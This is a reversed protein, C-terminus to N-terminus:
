RIRLTIQEQSTTLQLTQADSFTALRYPQWYPEAEFTSEAVLAGTQANFAELRYGEKDANTITLITFLDGEPQATIPFQGITNGKLAGSHLLKYGGALGYLYWSSGTTVVVKDHALFEIGSVSSHKNETFLLAGSASYYHISSSITEPNYLVLAIYKGQPDSYLLSPAQNPLQQEWKKNGNQDFCTLAMAAQGETKSRNGAIFFSGNDSLTGVFPHSVVKGLSKILKGDGSYINVFADRVVHRHLSDGYTVIRAAKAAFLIHSLAAVTRTTGNSQIEYQPKEPKGKLQFTTMKKDSSVGLLQKSSTNLPQRSVVEFGSTAQQAQLPGISGMLLLISVARLIPNVIKHFYRNFFLTKM